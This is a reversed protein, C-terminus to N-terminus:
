SREAAGRFLLSAQHLDPRLRRRGLLPLLARGPLCQRESRIEARPPAPHDAPGAAVRLQAVAGDRRQRNHWSQPRYGACACPRVPTGAHSLVSTRTHSRALTRTHMRVGQGDAGYIINNMTCCRWPDNIHGLKTGDGDFMQTPARRSRHGALAFDPWRPRSRPRRVQFDPRCCCIPGGATFSKHYQAIVDAREDQSSLWFARRRALRLPVRRPRATRPPPGPRRPPLLHPPPAAQLM